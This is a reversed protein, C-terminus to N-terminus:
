VVLISKTTEKGKAQLKAQTGSVSVPISASADEPPSGAFLLPEPPPTGTLEPPENVPPKDEPPDLEPDHVPSEDEPPEEVPLEPEAPEPPLDLQRSLTYSPIFAIHSVM